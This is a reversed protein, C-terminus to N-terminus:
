VLYVSEGYIMPQVKPSALTPFGYFTGNPNGIENYYGNGDESFYQLTTSPIFLPALRSITVMTSTEYEKTSKQLKNDDTYHEDTICEEKETKM